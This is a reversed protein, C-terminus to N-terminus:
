VRSLIKSKSLKKHAHNSSFDPKKYGFAHFYNEYIKYLTDITKNDITTFYYEMLNRSSINYGNFRDLKIRDSWGTKTLIYESDESFTEYKGIYNYSQTCPDCLGFFTKWHGNLAMVGKKDYVHIIYKIFENFTVGVGSKYQSDTLNNRYMRRIKVATSRMGDKAGEFKHRYASVLREFPHRVFMFSFYKERIEKRKAEDRLGNLIHLWSYLAHVNGKIDNIDGVKEDMVLM